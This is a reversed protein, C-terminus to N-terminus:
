TSVHVNYYAKYPIPGLSLMVRMSPYNEFQTAMVFYKDQEAAFNAGEALMTGFIGKGRQQSTVAALPAEVAYEMEDMLQFGVPEGSACVVIVKNDCLGMEVWSAYISDAKASTEHSIHYQGVYGNFSQAAIDKLREMHVRLYDTDAFFMEMGPELTPVPCHGSYYFEMTGGCFLPAEFVTNSARMLATIHGPLRINYYGGQADMQGKLEMLLRRMRGEEKESVSTDMNAFVFRVVFFPRGYLRSLPKNEDIKFGHLTDDEYIHFSLEGRAAINIKALQAFSREHCTKVYLSRDDIFSTKPM